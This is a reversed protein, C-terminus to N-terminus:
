NIIVESAEMNGDNDADLYIDWPTNSLSQENLDASTFDLKTLEMIANMKWKDIHLVTNENRERQAGFYVDKANKLTNHMRKLDDWFGSHREKIAPDCNQLLLHFQSLITSFEKEADDLITTNKKLLVDPDGSVTTIIKLKGSLRSMHTHTDIKNKIKLDLEYLLTYLQM